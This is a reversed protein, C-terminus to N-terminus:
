KEKSNLSHLYERIQSVTGSFSSISATLPMGDFLCKVICNRLNYINDDDWYDYLEITSNIIDISMSSQTKVNFGGINVNSFTLKQVNKVFTIPSYFSSSNNINTIYVEGVNEYFNVTGISNGAQDITCSEVFAADILGNGISLTPVEDLSYRSYINRINLKGVKFFEIRVESHMEKTELNEVNFEGFSVDNGGLYINNTEGHLDIVDFKEVEIDRSMQTYINFLSVERYTSQSVSVNGLKGDYASIEVRKLRDSDNDLCSIINLDEGRGSLIVNKVNSCEKMTLSQFPNDYLSLTSVFDCDRLLINGTLNNGQLNLDIRGDYSPVIGAWRYPDDDVLWGQNLNWNVGGSTEYFDKLVEKDIDNVVQIKPRFTVEEIVEFNSDYIQACLADSSSVPTWEVSVDGGMDTLASVKNVSSSGLPSFVVAVFPCPFSKKGFLEGDVHFKVTVPKGAIQETDTLPEIISLHKPMEMVTASVDVPLMTPVDDSLGLFNYHVGHQYEVGWNLGDKWGMHHIPINANIVQLPLASFSNQIYPKIDQYLGVTSYFLYRIHPYVTLKLDTSPAKNVEFEFPYAEGEFLPKDDGFKWGNGNIYSISIPIRGNMKGGFSFTASANLNLSCGIRIDIVTEIWVPVGYPTMFIKIQRFFNPIITKETDLAELLPATITFKPKIDLEMGLSGDVAFANVESVKVKLDKAVEKEKNPDGFSFYTTIERDFSMKMKEYGASISLDELSTGINIPEGSWDLDFLPYTVGMELTDTRTLANNKDYVVQYSGDGYINVIREPYILGNNVRGKVDSEPSFSFTLETNRFLEEMTAEITNLTVKNGTFSSSIVRRLYASTDTQLIVISSGDKFNPKEDNNFVLSFEGTNLNMNQIKVNDWDLAIYDPTVTDDSQVPKDPDPNVPTPDKQTPEDESCGILVLFLSLFLCYVTKKMILFLNNDEWDWLSM